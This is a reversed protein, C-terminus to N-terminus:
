WDMWLGANDREVIVLMILESCVWTMRMFCMEGLVSNGGNDGCVIGLDSLM